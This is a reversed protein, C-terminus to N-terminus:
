EGDQCHKGTWGMPCKCYYSGPTNECVGGNQCMNVECEDVDEILLTSTLCIYCKLLKMNLNM